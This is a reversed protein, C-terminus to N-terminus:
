DHKNEVTQPGTETKYIVENADNKKWIECILSVMHYKDKNTQSVESLLIFELDM